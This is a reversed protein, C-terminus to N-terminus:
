QADRISAEALYRHLASKNQYQVLQSDSCIQVVSKSHNSQNKICSNFCNQYGNLASLFTQYDFQYGFIERKFISYRNKQFPNLNIGHPYIYGGVIPMEGEGGLGRIEWCCKKQEANTEPKSIFLLLAQGPQYEVWRRGGTWDKYRKIKLSATEAEGSIIKPQGLTFNGEDVKSITGEVIMDSCGILDYLALPLYDASVTVTSLSTSILFGFYLLRRFFSLSTLPQNLM